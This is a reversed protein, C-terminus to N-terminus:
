KSKGTGGCYSCIGTDNCYNCHETYPDHYRCNWCTGDGHCHGCNDLGMITEGESDDNGFLLDLMLNGIRSIQGMKLNQEITQMPIAIGKNDYFKTSCDEDSVLLHLKLDIADEPIMRIPIPIDLAKHTFSRDPYISYVIPDLKGESDRVPKGNNNLVYLAVYLKEGALNETTLEIGCNLCEEDYEDIVIDTIEIVGVQVSPVAANSFSSFFIIIILFVIHKM